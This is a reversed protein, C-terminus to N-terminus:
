GRTLTPDRTEDSAQATAPDRPVASTEDGGMGPLDGLDQQLAEVLATLVPLFAAREAPGLRALAARIQARRLAGLENGIRTATPTMRLVVQRRDAPNVGREVLEREVLQDILESVAPMSIGMGAGIEGVTAQGSHHLHALAKMQGLSLGSAGAHRVFAAYLLRGIQPILPMAADVVEDAVTSLEDESYNM